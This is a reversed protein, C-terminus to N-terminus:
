NEKDRLWDFANKESGFFRLNNGKHRGIVFNAIVKAVPNMGFTAAKHTTEHSSLEKWIERAGPENKGCANLNILYSCKGNMRSALELCIGKIECAMELTQLGRAVVQITTSDRLFITDGAVQFETKELNQMEFFLRKNTRDGFLVIV